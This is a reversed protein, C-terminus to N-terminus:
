CGGSASDTVREHKGTRDEHAQKLVALEKDLKLVKGNTQRQLEITEKIDAKLEEKIDLFLLKLETYTQSYFKKNDGIKGMISNATEKQAKELKEAAIIADKKIQDETNERANMWKKIMFTAIGGTVVITGGNIFVSLLSIDYVVNEM